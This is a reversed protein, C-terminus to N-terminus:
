ENGETRADIMDQTLGICWYEERKGVKSQWPFRGWLHAMHPETDPCELWMLGDPPKICRDESVRQLCAEKNGDFVWKGSAKKRPHYQGHGDPPVLERTVWEFKGCRCCVWYLSSPGGDPLTANHWCHGNKNEPTYPQESM